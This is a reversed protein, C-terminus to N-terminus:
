PISTDSCTKKNNVLRVYLDGLSTPARGQEIVFGYTCAVEVYPPWTSELYGNIDSLHNYRVTPFLSHALHYTDGVPFILLRSLMGEIGPFRTRKGLALERAIGIDTDACGFWRHECLLSLWSFFPLWIFLAPIVILLIGYIGGVTATGFFLLAVAFFRALLERGSIVRLDYNSLVNRFRFALGRPTLPALVVRLFRLCSMRECLGAAILSDFAPDLGRRGVNPHHEACHLRMWVKTSPNLLPYQAFADALRFGLQRRYTLAGHMAFHALEELARFRGAVLIGVVGIFFASNVQASLAILGFIVLWNGILVAVGLLDAIPKPRLEGSLNRIDKFRLNAQEIHEARSITHPNIQAKASSQSFKAIAQSAMRRHIIWDSFLFALGIILLISSINVM